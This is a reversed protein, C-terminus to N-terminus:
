QKAMNNVGSQEVYYSYNDILNIEIIYCLLDHLGICIVWVQTM